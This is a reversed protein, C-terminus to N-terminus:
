DEENVVVRRQQSEPPQRQLAGAVLEEAREVPALAEAVRAGGAGVDDEEVVHHGVDAALLDEAFEDGAGVRV